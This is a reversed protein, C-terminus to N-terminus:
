HGPRCSRHARRTRLMSHYPPSHLYGGDFPRNLRYTARYNRTASNDGSMCIRRPATRAMTTTMQLCPCRVLSAPRRRCQGDKACDAITAHRRM